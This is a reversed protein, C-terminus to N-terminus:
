QTTSSVNLKWKKYKKEDIMIRNSLYWRAMETFVSVIEEYVDKNGPVYNGLLVGDFTIYLHYGAIPSSILKKETSILTLRGIYNPFARQLIYYGLEGDNNERYTIFAEKM